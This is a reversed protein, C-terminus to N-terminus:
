GSGPGFVRFPGNPVRGGNAGESFPTGNAQSPGASGNAQAKGQVIKPKHKAAIRNVRSAWAGLAVLAYFSDGSSVVLRGHKRMFKSKNSLEAFPVAIRDREDDNMAIREVERDSLEDEDVGRFAWTIYWDCATRLVVRGFFQQWEDLTPPGAKATRSPPVNDRKSRTRSRSPAEIADPEDPVIIADVVDNTDDGSFEADTASDTVDGLQEAVIEQEQEPTIGLAEM